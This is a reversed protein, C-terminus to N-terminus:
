PESWYDRRKHHKYTDSEQQRLLTKMPNYLPAQKIAERSMDVTVTEDAWSIGAIWQPAVLVSHGVWWNSTNVVLYRLSWTEEDILMGDVHGIDGDNAHVHYGIVANCSRLHPDDDCHEAEEAAAMVRLNEVYLEPSMGDGWLGIGGWYPPYGYYSLHSAEHQRSVPKDTNIDPSNKVQEKTIKVLLVQESVDTREIVIPSVLVKRSLLWSGTDVILYRVVWTADDFYFDKVQGIYGDVAVVSYGELEQISRLM